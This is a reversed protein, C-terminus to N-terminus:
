NFYGNLGLSIAPGIQNGRPHDIVRQDGSLFHVPGAKLDINTRLRDRMFPLMLPIQVEFTVHVQSPSKFEIPYGDVKNMYKLSTTDRAVFKIGIYLSDNDPQGYALDIGAILPLAFRVEKDKPTIGANGWLLASIKKYFARYSGRAGLTLRAANSVTDQCIWYRDKSPALGWTEWLPKDVYNLWVSAKIPYFLTDTYQLSSHLITRDYSKYKYEILLNNEKFSYDRDKPIFEWEANVNLSIKPIQIYSIGLLGGPRLNKYLNGSMTWALLNSLTDHLTVKAYSSPTLRSNRHHSVQALTGNRLKRKWTIDWGEDTFENYIVHNYFEKHYDFLFDVTLDSKKFNFLASPKLLYGKHFLPSFTFPTAGWHSYNKVQLAITAIPGYLSFGGAIEYALGENKFAMERGTVAAFYKWKADFMDSYNDTYKYGAFLHLPKNPFSCSSVVSTFHDRNKHGPDTFNNLMPEGIESGAHASVELHFLSDTEANSLVLFPFQELPNGYIISFMNLSKHPYEQNFLIMNSGDIRVPILSDYEGYALQCLLVWAVLGIFINNTKTFTNLMINFPSEQM